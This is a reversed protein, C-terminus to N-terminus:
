VKVTDIKKIIREIRCVALETNKKLLIYESMQKKSRENEKKLYEVELKLRCNEDNLRKLKEVVKKIQMALVEVNEM